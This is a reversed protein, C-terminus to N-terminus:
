SILGEAKMAAQVAPRQAIRASYDALVPWPSLDVKVLKSWGLITFLYADAISFEGGLLYQRNELQGAIYALRKGLGQKVQERWEEPMAPNFLSGFGKHLETTIFNLKEQLRYREMSGAAPALKREPVQDALYALIVAAETLVEGNNLALAPVYGNPNISTYDTGDATKKTALDVQEKDFSFGGEILVIHVAMSCAGPSYYLKM